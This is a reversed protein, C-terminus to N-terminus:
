TIKVTSPDAFPEVPQVAKVPAVVVTIPEALELLIASM